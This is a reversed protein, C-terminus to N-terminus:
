FDCPKRRATDWLIEPKNKSKRSALSEMYADYEKKLELYTNMEDSGHKKRGNYVLFVGILCGMGLLIVFPLVDDFFFLLWIFLGLVMGAIGAAIYGGIGGPKSPKGMPSWSQRAGCYPCLDSMFGQNGTGDIRDQILKKSLKMDAEDITEGVGSPIIGGAYELPGRKIVGAFSKGCVECDCRYDVEYFYHKGM